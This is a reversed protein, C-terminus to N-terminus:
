ECPLSLVPMSVSRLDGPYNMERNRVSVVKTVCFYCDTVHDIPNRITSTSFPLGTKCGTIWKNLTSSCSNCVAKPTWNKDLNEAGFGFFQIQWM